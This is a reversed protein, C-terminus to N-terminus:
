PNPQELGVGAPISPGSGVSAKGRGEVKASFPRNSVPNRLVITQGASGSAEARAELELRTGGSRVEVHVTEGRAVDRAAELWSTEIAMGPAIRRRPVRGAVDEIAAAFAAASPFAAQKELRLQGAEVARGPKLEAAAVVRTVEIRVNVRAWVAFKREGAYRVFGSWYGGAATQRLGARPFVLDGEPAPARSFDLVEVAADPLERGIAARIRERDLPTLPRELCLEADAPSAENWQAALRRLEAARFVRRVGPAPALAVPTEPAAAALGPLIRAMDRALIRDSGAGVALCGAAALAALPTM